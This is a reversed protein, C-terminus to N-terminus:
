GFGEVMMIDSGHYDRQSFVVWRGDKSVSFGSGVDFQGAPKIVPVSRGTAFTFLELASGSASHNLWYIGEPTPVWEGGWETNDPQRLILTPQGGGTPM